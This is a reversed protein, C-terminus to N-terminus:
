NHIWYMRDSKVTQVPESKTIKLQISNPPLVIKKKPLGWSLRVMEKFDIKGKEYQERAIKRQKENKNM